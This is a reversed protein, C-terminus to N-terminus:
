RTGRGVRLSPSGCAMGMRWRPGSTTPPPPGATWTIGDPSTMVRDGTGSAAVAVWLGDGYAVSNWQSQRRRLDQEDLHDRGSQDDGPGGVWEGVAVWLGNGYAVSRWNNQAASTRSTWTIGDPSTMVRDGTAPLSAVPSGCAMGMRWPPGSTTPPRRDQEDLHDRGSQDDGPDGDRSARLSPSGCAM